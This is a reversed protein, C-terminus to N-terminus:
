ESENEFFGLDIQKLYIYGSYVTVAVAIWILIEDIHWPFDIVRPDLIVSIIAIIQITTKIKGWKSASIVTGESAAIVRLGTVGLERGIIIIAAWASIENLAVFAILAASILLKDALPDVIKGFNTVIQNKRALYGDLGDTIAALIFTFLALFEAYVPLEKRLFLFLMFIPVLIIRLLTLKNPLNVTKNNKKM